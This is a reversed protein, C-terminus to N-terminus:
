HDLLNRKSVHWMIVGSRATWCHLPSRSLSNFNIFNRGRSPTTLNLSFQFSVGSSHCLKIMNFSGVALMTGDPSFDVTTMPYDDPSSTYINTGQTDWIKYRSDEGASAILESNPSWSIALVLGDHAQWKVLKSNAALPKLAIAKGQCYAIIQSNPSWRASIILGENQVVTSRLMGTRSFIKIVGDEGATLLGTGDASWRCATIAGNHATVNREVRAGKNLIVFRGDASSILLNENSRGGSKAILWNFDTPTFDPIKAVQVSDRSSITWKVIQCDDSFSILVRRSTARYASVLFNVWGCSYVENNSSWGVCTIASKYVSEKNLYIKFKMENDVRKKRSFKIQCIFTFVADVFKRGKRNVGSVTAMSRRRTMLLPLSFFITSFLSFEKDVTRQYRQCCNKKTFKRVVLSHSFDSLFEPTHSSINLLSFKWCKWVWNWKKFRHFNQWWCRFGKWHFIRVKM